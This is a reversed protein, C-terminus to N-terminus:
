VKVCGKFDPGPVMKYHEINTMYSKSSTFCQLTYNKVTGYFQFIEEKLEKKVEMATLLSQKQVPLLKNFSQNFKDRSVKDFSQLGAVFKQQEELSTCDDIMILIFEHAKIDAAGIFNKDSPLIAETLAALSKQQSGTISINKLAFGRGEEWHCAPLVGAGAAFILAHRIAIRRNM